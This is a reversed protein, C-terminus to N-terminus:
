SFQHHNNCFFIYTCNRCIIMYSFKNNKHFQMETPHEEVQLHKIKVREMIGRERAWVLWTDAHVCEGTRERGWSWMNHMDMSINTLIATHLNKIMRNSSNWSSQDPIKQALSIHTNQFTVFTGLIPNCREWSDSCRILENRRPLQCALLFLFLKLVEETKM